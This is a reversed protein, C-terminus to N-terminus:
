HNSKVPVLPKLVDEPPLQFDVNTRNENPRLEITTAEEKTRVGPYYVPTPVDSFYGTGARIGLGV